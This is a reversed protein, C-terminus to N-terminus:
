LTVHPPTSPYCGARAAVTVAVLLRKLRKSCRTRLLVRQLRRTEERGLSRGAQWKNLAKKVKRPLESM